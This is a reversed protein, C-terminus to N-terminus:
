NALIDRLKANSEQKYGFFQNSLFTRDFLKTNNYCLKFFLKFTAQDNMPISKLYNTMMEAILMRMTKDNSYKTVIRELTNRTELCIDFKREYIDSYVSNLNNYELLNNKPKKRMWSPLSPLLKSCAMSLFGNNKVYELKNFVNNISKYLQKNKDTEIQMKTICVKTHGKEIILSFSGAEFFNNEYVKTIKFEGYIDFKNGRLRSYESKICEVRIEKIYQKNDAANKGVIGTFFKKLHVPLKKSFFEDKPEWDDLILDQKIEEIIKGSKNGTIRNLVQLINILGSNLEFYVTEESIDETKPFYQVYFIKEFPDTYYNNEIEDPVHDKILYAPKLDEVIEFLERLEDATSSGRIKGNFIKSIPVLQPESGENEIMLTDYRNTVPNYYLCNCIDWMSSEVCTDFIPNVSCISNQDYLPIRLYNLVGEPYPLSKIGLQMDKEITSVIDMFIKDEIFTNNSTINFYNIISKLYSYFINIENESEIYSCIYSKFLIRGNM